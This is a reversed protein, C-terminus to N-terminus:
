GKKEEPPRTKWRKHFWAWQDPYCRIARELSATWLRTVQQVKEERTGTKPPHITERGALEYRRRRPHWVMFLCCIPANSALSLLAPGVPTWALRGFFPVFIGAIRRIDQDPLIGLLNKKRIYRMLISAPQDHYFVKMGLTERCKVIWQNMVPLYIEKAVVGLRGDHDQAFLGGLLEWAGFHATVVIVGKENMLKNFRSWDVFAPIRHPRGAVVSRYLEVVDVMARAFGPFVGVAIRRRATETKEPFAMGLHTLMLRREREAVLFAFSGLVAACVRLVYYPVWLLVTLVGHLFWMMCFRRFRKFRRRIFDRLNEDDWKRPKGTATM